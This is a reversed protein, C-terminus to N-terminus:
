DCAIALAFISVIM